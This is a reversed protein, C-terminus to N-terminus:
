EPPHRRVRAVADSVREVLVDVNLAVLAVVVGGLMAATGYVVM